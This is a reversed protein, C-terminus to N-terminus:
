LVGVEKLFAQYDQIVRQAKEPIIPFDPTHVINNRFRHANWLRKVSSFEDEDLQAIRDAMHQGTFGLRKLVDDAIKDAEIIGLKLSEASQPNTKRILTQWRERIVADRLTLMKRPPETFLTFRPRFKLAQYFACFFGIVILIDLLILIFNVITLTPVQLLGEIM